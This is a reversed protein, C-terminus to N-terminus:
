PKGSRTWCNRHYYHNGGLTIYDDDEWIGLGCGQCNAITLGREKRSGTMPEQKVRIYCDRDQDLTYWNHIAKWSVTDNCNGCKRNLNVYDHSCYSSGTDRDNFVFEQQGNEIITEKQKSKWYAYWMATYTIDDLFTDDIPENAPERNNSLLVALRALKIGIISAFSKYEEPFWSAIINAREMNENPNEDPNSTYDQRKKLHIAISRKLIDEVHNM